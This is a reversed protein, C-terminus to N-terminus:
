QNLPNQATHERLQELERLKGRIYSSNSRRAQGGSSSTSGDGDNDSSEHDSPDEDSESSSEDFARKKHFICCSKSSKKGDHENDHTDHTWQVRRRRTLRLRLPPNTPATTINTEEEIQGNEVVPLTLTRTQTGRTGHIIRSDRTANAQVATTAARINSDINTANNVTENEM